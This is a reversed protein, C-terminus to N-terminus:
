VVAVTKCTFSLHGSSMHRQIKVVLRLYHSTLLWILGELLRRASATANPVLLDTQTWCGLVLGRETQHFSLMGQAGSNLKVRSDPSGDGSPINETRKILLLVFEEVRGSKRAVSM